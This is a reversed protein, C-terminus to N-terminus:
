EVALPKESEEKMEPPLRRVTGAKDCFYLRPVSPQRVM